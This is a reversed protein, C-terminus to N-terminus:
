SETGRAKRDRVTTAIAIVILGVLIAVISPFNHRFFYHWFTPYWTRLEDTPAMAWVWVSGLFEGTAAIIAVTSLRIKMSMPDGFEHRLITMTERLAKYSRRSRRPGRRTKASPRRNDPHRNQGPNHGRRRAQPREADDVHIRQNRARQRGENRAAQHHRPRLRLNAHRDSQRTRDGAHRRLLNGLCQRNASRRAADRTRNYIAAGRQGAEVDLKLKVLGGFWAIPKGSRTTYKAILTKDNLFYGAIAIVPDLEGGGNGRLDVIVGPANRFKELAAKFDKATKHNFGDFEIYAEGSPLLRSEVAPVNPYIQATVTAEFASGDFRVLGLKVASGIPASFVDRYVFLQDARESSSSERKAAAEALREAVPKGDVSLVIM